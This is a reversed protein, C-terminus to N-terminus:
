YIKKHYSMLTKTTYVTAFHTGHANRGIYVVSRFRFTFNVLDTAM